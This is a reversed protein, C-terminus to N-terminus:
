IGSFFLNAIRKSQIIITNEGNVTEASNSWNHSGTVVINTTSPKDADIIAYKHHLFDASIKKLLVDVGANQLNLFENGTDSSNDM